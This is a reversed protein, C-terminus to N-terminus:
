QACTAECLGVLLLRIANHGPITTAMGHCCGQREVAPPINYGSVCSCHQRLTSSRRGTSLHCRRSIISSCVIAVHRPLRKVDCDAGCPAHHQTM